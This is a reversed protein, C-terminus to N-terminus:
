YSGTTNTYDCVEIIDESSPILATFNAKFMIKEPGSIDHTMESFRIRPLYITLKEGSAKALEIGLAADQFNKFKSYEGSVVSADFIIDMSGTIELQGAEITKRLGTGDLRYDDTDPNNNINLDISTYLDTTTVFQDTYLKIEKCYFPEDGPNVITGETASGAVEQKGVIDVSVTPIAGVAISLKLSSVKCGLYHMKQGSHDVQITASPLDETLGIPTIKTYEDGSDPTTDPDVLAAKGLALYFLVGTSYPYFEAPISGEVGEKGPAIAKTGRIGLLAESKVAEIKHNLSEDKFPIRYKLTAAEGFSSEIGLLVSSKAGTYAM